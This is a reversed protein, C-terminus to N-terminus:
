VVRQSKSAGPGKLQRGQSDTGRMGREEGRGGCGCESLVCLNNSQTERAANIIANILLLLSRMRKRSCIDGSNRYCSELIDYIM